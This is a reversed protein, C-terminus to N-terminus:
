VYRGRKSCVSNLLDYLKRAMAVFSSAATNMVVYFEVLVLVYYHFSVCIYKEALELVHSLYIEPLM